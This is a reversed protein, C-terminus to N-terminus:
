YFFSYSTFSSRNGQIQGSPDKYSWEVSALDQIGPPPGTSMPGSLSESIKPKYELSLQTINPSDQFVSGDSTSKYFSDGSTIDPQTATLREEKREKRSELGGDEEEERIELAKVDQPQEGADRSTGVGSKLSAESARRRAVWSDGNNLVGDFNPTYGVRTRPSPMAADRPSM